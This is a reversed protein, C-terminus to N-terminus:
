TSPFIYAPEFMLLPMIDCVTRMQNLPRGKQNAYDAENHQSNIGAPKM